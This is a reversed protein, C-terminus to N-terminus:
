PAHYESLQSFRTSSYDGNYMPWDPSPEPATASKDGCAAMFIAIPLIAARM